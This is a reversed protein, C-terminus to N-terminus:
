TLQSCSPMASSNFKGISHVVTGLKTLAHNSGSTILNSDLVGCLKTM